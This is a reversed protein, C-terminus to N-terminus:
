DMPPFVPQGILTDRSHSQVFTPINAESVVGSPYSPKVYLNSVCGGLSWEYWIANGSTIGTLQGNNFTATVPVMFSNLLQRFDTIALDPTIIGACPFIMYGLSESRELFMVRAMTTIDVWCSASIKQGEVTGLCKYIPVGNEALRMSYVAVSQNEVEQLTVTESTIFGDPQRVLHSSKASFNGFQLQAFCKQIVTNDPFNKFCEPLTFVSGNDFCIGASATTSGSPLMANVSGGLACVGHTQGYIYTAAAWSKDPRSIYPTANYSRAGMVQELEEEPTTPESTSGIYLMDATITDYTIVPCRDAPVDHLPMQHVVDWVYSSSGEDSIMGWFQGRPFGDFTWSGTYGAPPPCYGNQLSAGVGWMDVPSGGVPMLLGGATQIADITKNLYGANCTSINNALNYKESMFGTM